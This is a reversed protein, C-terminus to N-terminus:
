LEFLMLQKRALEIEKPHYPFPSGSGKYSVRVYHSGIRVVIGVKTGQPFMHIYKTHLKVKDGVKFKTTIKNDM